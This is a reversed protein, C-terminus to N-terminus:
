KSWRTRAPRCASRLPPPRPSCSTNGSDGIDLPVIFGEVRATKKDLGLVEKSFEAVMRGNQKVPQVQALTRWSVVGAREPLLTQSYDTASPLGNPPIDSTVARASLAALVVVAAVFVASAARLMADGM